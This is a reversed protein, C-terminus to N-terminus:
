IAERRNTPLDRAPDSASENASGGQSTDSTEEFRFEGSRRLEDEVQRYYAAIRHIDHGCQESIQHRIKRIEAIEGNPM